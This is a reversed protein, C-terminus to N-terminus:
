NSYDNSCFNIELQARYWELDVRAQAYDLRTHKEVRTRTVGVTVMPFTTRALNVQGVEIRTWRCSAAGGGPYFFDNKEVTINM